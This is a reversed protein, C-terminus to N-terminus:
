SYIPNFKDNFIGPTTPMSVQPLNRKYRWTFKVSNLKEDGDSIESTFDTILISAMAYFDSEEQANEGYPLRVDDSTLLQEMLECEDSTLPATQTEYEKSVTADYFQSTDGLSAVSRDAKIKSTTVGQVPLQEEIHFCNAFHYVPVDALAPDVFYTAMRNGRRVTFSLLTPNRVKCKEKLVARIEKLYITVSRVGDAHAILGNGSHLWRYTQRKGSDDLYTILVHLSIGEKETTYWSLNVFGDPAIRRFRVTTLFNETLWESPDFMGTSRNCFMANFTVSEAKEDDASAEITFQGTNFETDDSLAQEILPSIERVLVNNNVAYYRGSLLPSGGYLIQVDAFGHDTFVQIDPTDSSFILGPTYYGIRIMSCIYNASSAAWFVAFAAVGRLSCGRPRRNPSTM